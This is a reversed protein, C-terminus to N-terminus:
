MGLKRLRSTIAGHKRQFIIALEKISKGQKYLAVLRDDDEKTWACYANPYKSRIEKLTYTKNFSLFEDAKFQSETSSRLFDKLSKSSDLVAPIEQLPIIYLQEPQCPEGGIGLVIFVPMRREDAFQHYIALKDVTLMDKELDTTLRERWKCEVAFWHSQQHCFVFDPYRNSEPCVDGLTKDGQWEKLVLDGDERIDFLELVYDEFERGKLVEEPLTISLIRQRVSLYTRRLQKKIAHIGMDEYFMRLLVKDDGVTWRQWHNDKEAAMLTLPEDMLYEVNRRGALLPFVSGNKNVYGCIVHQVMSLVYENRVRPTLGKGKPEDRKLVLILIRKEQLAREIQINHVDRFQNMVVLITPVKNVVLAKLVEEEMETSNFCVVCDRLSLSDVWQFVRGYLEIPMRKSCLFLTKERELLQQNGISKIIRM